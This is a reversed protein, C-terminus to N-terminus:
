LIGEGTEEHSVISFDRPNERQLLNIFWVQDILNIGLPSSQQANEGMELIKEEM